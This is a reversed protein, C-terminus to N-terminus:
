NKTNLLRLPMVSGIKAGAPVVFYLGKSLRARAFTTRDYIGIKRGMLDYVVCDKGFVPTYVRIGPMPTNAVSSPVCVAGTSDGGAVFMKFVACTQKAVYFGAGDIRFNAPVAVSDQKAGNVKFVYRNAFRLVELTDTGLAGYIGPGIQSSISPSDPHVISYRRLSDVVFAFSRLSNTDNQVFAVGYAGAGSKHSVIAKLSASSSIKDTFITSSYVADTNNLKLEGGGFTAEGASPNSWAASMTTLFSDAFCASAPADENVDTVVVDDVKITAKPPVLIAVDGSGFDTDSFRGLYHNNCWVNFIGASKSVKLINTGPTANIFPSFAKKRESSATGAYKFCYIWQGKGLQLTYGKIGSKNDFCYMLGAGNVSTDAIVFKASLTFTAPKTAFLHIYFATYTTDPNKLTLSGGSFAASFSAAALSNWKVKSSNTDSFDDSFITTAWTPGISALVCMIIVMQKFRKMAQTRQFLDRNSITMYFYVVKLHKVDINM